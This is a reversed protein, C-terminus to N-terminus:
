NNCSRMDFSPILAKPRYSLKAKCLSATFGLTLGKLARGVAWECRQEDRATAYEMKRREDM